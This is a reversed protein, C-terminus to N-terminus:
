RFFFILEEKDFFCLYKSNHVHGAMDIDAFRIALNTKTKTQM